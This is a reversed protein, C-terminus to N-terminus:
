FERRIWSVGTPQRVDCEGVAFVLHIRLGRAILICIFCHSCIYSYSSIFLSRVFEFHSARWKILNCKKKEETEHSPAHLQICIGVNCTHPPRLQRFVSCYTILFLNCIFPFQRLVGRDTSCWYYRQCIQQQAHFIRLEYAINNLRWWDNLNAISQAWQERKSYRHVCECERCM